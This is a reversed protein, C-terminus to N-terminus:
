YEKDYARHLNMNYDGKFLYEHDELYRNERLRREFRRYLVVVFALLALVLASHKCNVCMANSDGLPTDKFFECDTKECRDSM